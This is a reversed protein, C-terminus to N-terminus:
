RILLAIFRDRQISNSKKFHNSKIVSNTNVNVVYQRRFSLGMTKHNIFYETSLIVSFKRYTNLFYYVM